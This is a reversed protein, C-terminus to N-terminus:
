HRWIEIYLASMPIYTCFFRVCLLTQTPLAGTVCHWSVSCYELSGRVFQKFMHILEETDAGGCKLKTLMSMQAYAKKCMERTNKSWGGDEQLWVGLLKVASQREIVKQNLTLRTSFQERARTFVLYTTKSENLRMLNDNTWRSIKDLNSQTDLREVPIFRQEGQIDSPIHQIFDYEALVSGM